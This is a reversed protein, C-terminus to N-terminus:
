LKAVEVGSQQLELRLEPQGWSGQEPSAEPDWRCLPVDEAAATVELAQAEQWATNPLSEQPGPALDERNGSGQTNAGPFPLSPDM